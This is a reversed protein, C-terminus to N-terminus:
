NYAPVEGWTDLLATRYDGKGDTAMAPPAESHGRDKLQEILEHAVQEETKGIARGVRLRTDM